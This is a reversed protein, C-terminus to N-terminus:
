SHRSAPSLEFHIKYVGGRLPMETSHRWIGQFKRKCLLDSRGRALTKSHPPLAYRRCRKRVSTVGDFGDANGHAFNMGCRELWAKAECRMKFIIILTLNGCILIISHRLPYFPKGFDVEPAAVLVVDVIRVCQGIQLSCICPRGPRIPCIATM